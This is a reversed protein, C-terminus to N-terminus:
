MIINFEKNKPESFFYPFPIPDRNINENHFEYLDLLNDIQCDIDFIEKEWNVITDTFIEWKLKEINKIYKELAKKEHVLENTNYQETRLYNWLLEAPTLDQFNEPKRLVVHGYAKLIHDIKYDCNKIGSKVILEYLEPKYMECSCPINNANLWHLMDKKSSYETIPKIKEDLDGKDLVLVSNPELITLLIDIIWKTFIETDIVNCFIGNIYGNRSICHLFYYKDVGYTNTPTTLSFKEFNFTKDVIRGEIYCIPKDSNRMKIIKSLYQFREYRLKANEVIIPCITTIKYEYGMACLQRTIHFNDKSQFVGTKTFLFNLIELYSLKVSNITIHYLDQFSKLLKIKQQTKINSIPPLMKKRNQLEYFIDSSYGTYCSARTEVAELHGDLSKQIKEKVCQALVTELISMVETDVLNIKKKDIPHLNAAM